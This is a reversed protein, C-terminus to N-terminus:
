KSLERWQSAASSPANCSAALLAATLQAAKVLEAETVKDRLDGPTLVLRVNASPNDYGAVLRF